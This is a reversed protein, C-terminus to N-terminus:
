RRVWLRFLTLVHTLLSVMGAIVLVIRYGSPIPAGSPATVSLIAALGVLVISLGGILILFVRSGDVAGPSRARGLERALSRSMSCLRGTDERRRNGPFRDQGM